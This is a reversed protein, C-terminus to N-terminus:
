VNEYYEKFKELFYSADEGDYEGFHSIRMYDHPGGGKGIRAMLPSVGTYSAGCASGLGTHIGIEGLKLMIELGRGTGLKIFTTGASRRGGYGVIDIGLSNLGGELEEKFSHMKHAREDMTAMAWELATAAKVIGETDPTGSRDMMYRSGSGFPVWHSSNRIYFIGVGAPGGFKHAGFAAFDVFSLDVIEKGPMQCMDSFLVKASIKKLNQITGIENQMGICAVPMDTVIPFIEGEANLAAELVYKFYKKAAQKVAPHEAASIMVSSNSNNLEAMCAFAWECAQTCSSTFFLSEPECKFCAAIRERANEIAKAAAQGAYGPSLPHGHGALGLDVNKAAGCLPLHANADLYLTKIM